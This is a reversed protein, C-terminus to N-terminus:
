PGSLSRLGIADSPPGHTQFAVVLSTTKMRCTRNRSPIRYPLWLLSRFASTMPLASSTSRCSMSDRSLSSLVYLGYLPVYVGGLSTWLLFSRLQPDVSPGQYSFLSSPPLSISSQESSAPPHSPRARRTWEVTREMELQLYGKTRGTSDSKYEIIYMYRDGAGEWM